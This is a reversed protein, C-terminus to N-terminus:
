AEVIEVRDKFTKLDDYGGSGVQRLVDDCEHSEGWFYTVPWMSLRCSIGCINSSCSFISCITRDVSLM